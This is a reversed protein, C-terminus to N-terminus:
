ETGKWKEDTYFTNDTQIFIQNNEDSFHVELKRNDGKEWAVIADNTPDVIVYKYEIFSGKRQTWFGGVM